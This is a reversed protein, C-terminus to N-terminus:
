AQSMPDAGFLKAELEAKNPVHNEEIMRVIARRLLGFTRHVADGLKENRGHAVASRADYLKAIEKQLSLRGLGAPEFYSAISASIRYRLEERGTSFLGELSGWIWVLALRDYRAFLCQDAAQVALSFSDFEVFLNAASMWYQKVWALDVESISSRHESVLTRIPPEVELPYFRTTVDSDVAEAFPGTAIVPVVFSPGIRLRLLAVIWWALSRQDFPGSAAPPVEIQVLIDFGLGGSAARWPGPHHEGPSPPPAFAVMFPAM